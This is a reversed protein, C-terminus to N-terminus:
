TALPGPLGERVNGATQLAYVRMYALTRRKSSVYVPLSTRFVTM